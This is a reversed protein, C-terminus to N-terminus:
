GRASPGAPQPSAPTPQSPQLTGGPLPHQVASPVMVPAAVVGAGGCCPAPAGCPDIPVRMVVLRPVQQTYTVPTRKEVVRPVRFTQEFAVMKCVQVPTQSVREETVMRCTTVPIRRVVEEEVMKCVQVPTQQQVREVVQRYTTVPVRRVQEEQVIRQVQVPVKRVVEEDVCRAVQVPVKRTVIRQVYTTQPVQQAVVNPAWVRAVTVEAPAAEPVWALGGRQYAAAGTLPDVACAGPLWRLRTRVPGPTVVQQEVFTGQDVYNTRYTTVPEVVATSEDREATEMVQRRVIYREEREQTEIVPRAVMYREERDSTEPITACSMTARTACRRNGLGTADGQLTRRARQNGDGSASGHLATRANRNGLGASLQDATARRLGNRRSEILRSKNSTTSRKTSWAIPKAAEQALASATVAVSMWFAILRVM